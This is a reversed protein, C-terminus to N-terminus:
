STSDIRDLVMFPTRDLVMPATDLLVIDRIGTSGNQKQGQLTDRTAGM